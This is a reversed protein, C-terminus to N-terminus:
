GGVMELYIQRRIPSMALIESEQWGYALALTHVERLIRCAWANIESWFFSVIDLVAEIQNGCSPCAVAMQIDAQPDLQGMHKSVEDKVHAPLEEPTKGDDGFKASLIIRELLRDRSALLDDEADLDALDL